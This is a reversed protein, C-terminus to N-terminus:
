FPVSINGFILDMEGLAVPEFGRTRIGRIMEPLVRLTRNARSELQSEKESGDHLDIIAGNKLRNLVQWLILKSPVISLWDNPVINADVVVLEHSDIERKLERTLEAVRPVGHHRRRYGFQPVRVFRVKSGTINELAENGRIFDGYRGKGPAGGHFYSHGGVTHGESIARRVIEPYKEAWMGIFFFSAKCNERKLIDLIQPTAYPNPGDDFTIAVKKEGANGHKAVLLKIM